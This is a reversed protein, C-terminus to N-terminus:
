KYGKKMSLILVCDLMRLTIEKTPKDEGAIGVSIKTADNDIVTFDEKAM